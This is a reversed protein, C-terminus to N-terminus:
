AVRWTGTGSDWEYHVGDDDYMELFLEGYIRLNKPDGAFVHADTENRFKKVLKYSSHGTTIDYGSEQYVLVKNKM